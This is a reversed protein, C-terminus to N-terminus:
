NWMYYEYATTGPYVTNEKSVYLYNWSLMGQFINDHEWMDDIFCAGLLELIPGVTVNAIQNVNQIHM